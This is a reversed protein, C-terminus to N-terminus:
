YPLIDRANMEDMMEVVQCIPLGVVNTYSGVLSDVLYMGVGQIAYAGAKDMSEGVTLYREIEKVTMEKMRVNTQVAQLGEKSKQMDFLCFGTLVYHERGQLRTLIEVAHNHDSPKGVVENDIVVVTDAGLVWRLPVDRRLGRQIRAQEPDTYLTQQIRDVVSLVKARAIRKVFTDPMEDIHQSEDITAPMAKVSFGVKELLELRRPSASALVLQAPM